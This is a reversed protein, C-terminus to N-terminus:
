FPRMKISSNVREKMEETIEPMGHRNLLHDRIKPVLNEPTRESIAYDCRFGIDRCRFVFHTM